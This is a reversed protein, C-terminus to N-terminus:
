KVPLERIKVNRYSAEDQHSTLLVYGRVHYGFDKVNKFKTKAIQALLAPDGCEYQLVKEGNLWHEVHNGQVIVRSRNWEGWPKIKKDARPAVVLYFSACSSYPDDKVLEDDIMQYEHGITANREKTIFYKVGNNSKPPMSWEWSLEFNDFEQQYVIDGGKGNKIHTLIGNEIKWGEVPPTTKNYSHWGQLSKGDFLLKWGDKKEQTTLTNIPQDAASLSGIAVMVLLGLTILGIVNRYTSMLIWGKWLPLVM